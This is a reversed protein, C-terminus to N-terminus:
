PRPWTRYEAEMGLSEDFCDCCLGPHEENHDGFPGGAAGEASDLRKGNSSVWYTLSFGCDSCVSM